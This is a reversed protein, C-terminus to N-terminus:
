SRTFNIEAPVAETQPGPEAPPMMLEVPKVNKPEERQQLVKEIKEIAREDTAKSQEFREILERAEHRRQSQFENEDCEMMEESIDYKDGFLTEDMLRIKKSLLKKTQGVAHNLSVPIGLPRGPGRQKHKGDMAAIEDKLQAVSWGYDGIGKVLKERRTESPVNLLVVVHSWSIGPVQSLLEFSAQDYWDAFRRCDYLTRINVRQVEAVHTVLKNLANRLSSKTNAKKDLDAQARVIVRGVEYRFSLNSQRNNRFLLELQEYYPLAESPLTNINPERLQSNVSTSNTGDTNLKTIMMTEKM